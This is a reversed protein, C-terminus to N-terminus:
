FGILRRENVYVPEYGFVASLHHLFAHGGEERWIRSMEDNVRAYAGLIEASPPDSSFPIGAERSVQDILDLWAESVGMIYLPWAKQVPLSWTGDSTSEISGRDGTDTGELVLEELIGSAELETLRRDDRIRRLVQEARDPTTYFLFSFRHGARDRAARRHFRWLPFDRPHSNLLPRVIQHALYLDLHWAPPEGTPWRIRFRTACWEKGEGGPRIPPDEVRRGAMPDVLACGAGAALIMVMLIGMSLLRIQNKQM